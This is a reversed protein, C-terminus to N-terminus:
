REEILKFIENWMFVSKEKLLFSKKKIKEKIFERSKFNILLDLMPFVEDDKSSVSMVGEPFNYDEFLMKYKHSWGVALSPVGQSLASALGHFRSGLTAECCGLIGKIKLPHPETVICLVGGVGKNIEEALWFDKTSDHVLLFPAAKKALLYKACATMFSVYARGEKETKKEIMCYNPILGFRHENVDFDDPIMGDILCTFDPSIKINERRGVVEVLYEYSTKERAFVLDACDISAEIYKKIERGEFPGFAQPMLVIKTGNKKWRRCARALERCDRGGWQDSYTFGGADLVVDVEREMVIGYMDRFDRPLLAFLEGFRIGKRQYYAKQHFGLEARKLFPASSESKGPMMVFNVDPYMHRMKDLIAYIMLESGKNKFGAKRVEVIM